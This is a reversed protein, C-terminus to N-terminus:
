GRAVFWEMVATGVPANAVISSTAAGEASSVYEAYGVDTDMSASDALTRNIIGGGKSAGRM